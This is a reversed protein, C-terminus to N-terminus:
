SGVDFFSLGGYHTWVKSWEAYHDGSCM